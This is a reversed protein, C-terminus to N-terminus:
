TLLHSYYQVLTHNSDTVSYYIINCSYCLRCQITCTLTCYDIVFSLFCTEISFVESFIVYGYQFQKNLQLIYIYMSYYMCAIVCVHQLVYMSYYMCYISYYMIICVHQLGYMSYYMCAIICVHQIYYMCAIICVHQLVFMSYYLVYMYM